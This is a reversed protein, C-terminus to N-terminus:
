RKMLFGQNIRRQQIIQFDLDQIQERTAERIREREVERQDVQQQQSIQALQMILRIRERIAELEEQTINPNAIQARRLEERIMAEDSLGSNIRRQQIIQFDLDQIQERTAERARGYRNYKNRKYRFMNRINNCTLCFEQM